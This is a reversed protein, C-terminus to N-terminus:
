KKRAHFSEFEQKGPVDANWVFSFEYEGQVEEPQVNFVKAVDAIYCTRPGPQFPIKKKHPLVDLDLEWKPEEDILYGELRDKLPLPQKIEVLSIVRATFSCQISQNSAVAQGSGPVKSQTSTGHDAQRRCSSVAIVLALFMPIDIIKM